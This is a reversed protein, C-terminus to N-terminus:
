RDIGTLKVQVRATEGAGVTVGRAHVGLRPHEFVVAHAGAPVRVMLPTVGYSTGDVRLKAPPESDAWVVADGHGLEVSSRRPRQEHGDRTPSIAHRLPDSDWPESRESAEARELAESPESREPNFARPRELQQRLAELAARGEERARMTESRANALEEEVHNLRQRSAGSTESIALFALVSVVVGGILAMSAFWVLRTRPREGGRLAHLEAERQGLETELAVIRLEAALLDDRYAMM